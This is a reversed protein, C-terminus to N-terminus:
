DAEFRYFGSFRMLPGDPMSFLQADTAAAHEIRTWCPVSFTDGRQWAFRQDGAVTEGSGEVCCFVPNATSGQRRTRSGSALREM